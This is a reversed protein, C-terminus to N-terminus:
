RGSLREEMLLAIERATPSAKDYTTTPVILGSPLFKFEEEGRAARQKNKLVSVHVTPRVEQEAKLRTSLDKADALRRAGLVVFAEQESGFAGSSLSLEQGNAASYRNGQHLAILPVEHQKAMSKFFQAKSTIEETVGPGKLYSLYDYSVLDLGGLYDRAEILYGDIQDTRLNRDTIALRPYHEHMSAIRVARTLKRVEDLDLGLAIALLKDIVMDVTEDPTFHVCAKDRNHYLMTCLVQTKGGHSYGILTHFGNALGGGLMKDVSPLGTPTRPQLSEGVEEALPAFHNYRKAKAELESREIDSREM